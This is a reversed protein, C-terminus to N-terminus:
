SELPLERVRVERALAETQARSALSTGPALLAATGGAMGYRLAEAAQAGESFRWVACALFSDGAGVTSAIKVELPPAYLAGAASVLM